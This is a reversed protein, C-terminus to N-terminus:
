RFYVSLDRDNERDGQRLVVFVNFLCFPVHLRDLLVHRPNRHASTQTDVLRAVDMANWRSLTSDFKRSRTSVNNADVTM